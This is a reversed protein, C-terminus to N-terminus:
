VEKSVVSRVVAFVNNFGMESLGFSIMRWFGFCNIQSVFILFFGQLM